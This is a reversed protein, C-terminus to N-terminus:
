GGRHIGTAQLAMDKPISQSSEHTLSRLRRLPPPPGGGGSGAYRASAAQRLDILERWIEDLSFQGVAQPRSWISNAYASIEVAGDAVRDTDPPQRWRVLLCFGRLVEFTARLDWETSEHKAAILSPFSGEGANKM